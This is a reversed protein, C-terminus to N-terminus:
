LIKNLAQVAEDQMTKLVHSYTDLTIRCSSHGLRESVIKVNIGAELLWTAHTHRLDHIRVNTDIGAKKLIQKFDHASFSNPSRPMGKANALVWNSEMYKFGFRISQIKQWLRYRKLANCTSDPLPISRKSLKTKASNQIMIGKTTTVVIKDIKLIKKKLDINSWELGFIESIRMGTSLALNIIIWAPRSHQLATKLLIKSEEHSIIRIESAQVKMPKTKIAPNSKLLNIDAAVNLAQILLRRTANVSRPALGDQKAGGNRLLFNLHQQIQSTSLKSLETNGINHDAINKDILNKYREYSKIKVANKQYEELWKNLWNQLTLSQESNTQMSEVFEKAKQKAEKASKQSTFLKRKTSGTAPDLYSIKFEFRKRTANFCISGEGNARKM